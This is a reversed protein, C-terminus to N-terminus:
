CNCIRILGISLIFLCVVLFICLWFIPMLCISPIKENRTMRSSVPLGWHLELIQMIRVARQNRNLLYEMFYLVFIGCFGSAYCIKSNTIYSLSDGKIILSITLSVTALYAFPVYWFQSTYYRSRNNLEIYYTQLIEAKAANYPNWNEIYGKQEEPNERNLMAIELVIVQVLVFFISVKYDKFIILRPLKFCSPILFAFLLVVLVLVLIRVICKFNKHKKNM